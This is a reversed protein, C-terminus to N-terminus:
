EKKASVEITEQESKGSHNLENEIDKMVKAAGGEQEYLHLCREIFDTIIM